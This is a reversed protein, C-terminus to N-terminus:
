PIVEIIKWKKDIERMMLHAGCRVCYASADGNQFFHLPLPVKKCHKEVKVKEGTMEQGGGRTYM